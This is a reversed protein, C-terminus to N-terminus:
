VPVGYRQLLGFILFACAFSLAFVVAFQTRVHISRRRLREILTPSAIARHSTSIM